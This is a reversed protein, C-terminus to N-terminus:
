ATRKAKDGDVPTSLKAATDTADMLELALRRVGRGAAESCRESKALELQDDLRNLLDSMHKMPQIYLNVLTDSIQKPAVGNKIAWVAATRALKEGRQILNHIADIRSQVPSGSSDPSEYEDLEDLLTNVAMALARHNRTMERLSQRMSDKRQKRFARELAPQFLPGQAVLADLRQDISAQQDYWSLAELVAKPHRKESPLTDLLDMVYDPELFKQSRYAQQLDHGLNYDLVMALEATTLYGSRVQFTKAIVERRRGAIADLAQRYAHDKM